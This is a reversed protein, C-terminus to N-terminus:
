SVLYVAYRATRILFSAHDLGEGDVLARGLVDPPLAQKGRVDQESAFALSGLGHAPLWRRVAWRLIACSTQQLIILTESKAESAHSPRHLALTEPTNISFRLVLARQIGQKDEGCRERQHSMPCVISLLHGSSLAVFPSHTFLMANYMTRPWYRPWSRWLSSAYSSM